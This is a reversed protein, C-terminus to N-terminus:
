QLLLPPESGNLFNSFNNKYLNAKDQFLQEYINEYEVSSVFLDKDSDDIRLVYDDNQKKALFTYKFSHHKEISTYGGLEDIGPIQLTVFIEINVGIFPSDDAWFVQYEFNNSGGRNLKYLSTKNLDDENSVMIKYSPINFYQQMWMVFSFLFNGVDDKYRELKKFNADLYNTLEGYKTM